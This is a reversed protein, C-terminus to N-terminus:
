ANPVENTDVEQVMAAVERLTANHKEHWARAREQWTGQLSGWLPRTIAEEMLPGAEDLAAALRDALDACAVSARAMSMSRGSITGIDGEYDLWWQARERAEEITNM